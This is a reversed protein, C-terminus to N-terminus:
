GIEAESSRESRTGDERQMWIELFYGPKAPTNKQEFISRVAESSVAQPLNFASFTIRFFSKRLPM